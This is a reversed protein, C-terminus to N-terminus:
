LTSGFCIIVKMWTRFYLCWTVLGFDDLVNKPRIIFCKSIFILWLLKCTTPSQGLGKIKCSFNMCGLPLMFHFIGELLCPLLKGECIIKWLCWLLHIGSVVQINLIYFIFSGVLLLFDLLCFGQQCTCACL